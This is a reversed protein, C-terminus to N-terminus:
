GYITTGKFKKNNLLSDLNKTKPGIIYTKIKDKKIIRAADQDLVFHQGPRFKIKLAMKEFDKWSIFPIFKANKNKLPNSSYLGDVNTINIFDTRFYNSLKAATSDSTENAAYRLAGCIVIKNKALYDRVDKMSTPIVDNATKGFIQMLLSANMRTAKIGALSQELKSKNQEKLAKIYTRAIAGGGCVIIFKYRSFNKSLVRELKKLYNPNDERPAILSGGLSIVVLKKM